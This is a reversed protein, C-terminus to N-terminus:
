LKKKTSEEETIRENLLSINLINDQSLAVLTTAVLMPDEDSRKSIFEDENIERMTGDDEKVKKFKKRSLERQHIDFTFSGFVEEINYSSPGEQKPVVSNNPCHTTSTIKVTSHSRDM